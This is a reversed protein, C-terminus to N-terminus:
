SIDAEQRARHKAREHAGVLRANLSEVLQPTLPECWAGYITIYGDQWTGFIPLVRRAHWQTAREALRIVVNAARGGPISRGGIELKQRGQFLCEVVDVPVRSAGIAHLYLRLEDNEYVLRPRVAHWALAFATIGGVVVLAIGISSRLPSPESAGFFAWLGLAIVGAALLIGVFLPRRNPKLWVERM